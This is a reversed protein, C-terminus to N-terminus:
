LNKCEAEEEAVYAPDEWRTACSPFRAEVYEHLKLELDKTSIAKTKRYRIRRLLMAVNQGFITLKKVERRTAALNNRLQEEWDDIEQQERISM